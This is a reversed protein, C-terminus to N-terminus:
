QKREWQSNIYQKVTEESVIGVSSVFTGRSWLVKRRRYFARLDPFVELHKRASISKLTRVAAAPSVTYPIDVFLHIHDPMIELAKVVYGKDKCIDRLISELFIRRQPTLVSFRFKPCWIIYYQTLYTVHSGRHYPAFSM